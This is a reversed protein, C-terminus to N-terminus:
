TLLRGLIRDPDLALFPRDGFAGIGILDDRDVDYPRLADADLSLIGGTTERSVAIIEDVIAGVRRGNVYLVLLRHDPRTLSSEGGIVVGFDFVTVVRGRIGVLGCVEPGCGPLRTIACPPLIERTRELPLGFWHEGCAFVVWQPAVSTMVGDDAPSPVM